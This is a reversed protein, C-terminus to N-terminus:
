RSPSLLSACSFGFSSAFRSTPNLLHHVVLQECLPLRPLLVLLTDIESRFVQPLRRVVILHRHPMAM